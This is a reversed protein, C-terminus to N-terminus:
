LQVIIVFSSYRPLLTLFTKFKHKDKKRWETVTFDKWFIMSSRERFYECKISLFRESKLSIIARRLIQRIWIRSYTLLSNPILFITYKPSHSYCLLYRIRFHSYKLDCACFFRESHSYCLSYLISFNSYKLDCTCFFRATKNDPESGAPHDNNLQIEEQPGFNKKKLLIKLILKLWNFFKKAAGHPKHTGLERVLFWVQARPLSLM